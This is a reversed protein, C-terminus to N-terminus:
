HPFHNRLSAGAASGRGTTPTAGANNLMRANQDTGAATQDGLRVNNGQPCPDAFAV